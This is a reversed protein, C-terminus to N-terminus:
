NEAEGREQYIQRMQGWQDNERKLISEESPRWFMILDSNKGEVESIAGERDGKSSKLRKSSCFPEM